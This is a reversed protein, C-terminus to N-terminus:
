SNSRKALIGHDHRMLSLEHMLREIRRLSRKTVCRLVMGLTPAGGSHIVNAIRGGCWRAEGPTVQRM